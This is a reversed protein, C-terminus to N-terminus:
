FIFYLCRLSPETALLVEQQELSAWLQTRLAWMPCRLAAQLELEQPDTRGAAPRDERSAAELVLVGPVSDCLCMFLFVFCHVCILYLINSSYV